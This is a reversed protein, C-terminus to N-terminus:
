KIEVIRDLGFFYLLTSKIPLQYIRSLANDYALVQTKYKEVATPLSAETVYDTKFDIVTIGDAEVIACDVVGQLLIQENAVDPYYKGADDLISFKFERLVNESNQLRRGLQSDFFTFLKKCDVMKAQEASILQENKMREVEERISIEDCCSAYRIYQLVVHMANGYLVGSPGSPQGPKRFETARVGITNEAIETDKARGKLQTATLKSPIQTASKNVYTFNLDNALKNIVATSPERQIAIDTAAQMDSGSATAVSIQWVSDRVKACNPHGGLEFFAGAETRTLAAQLVWAGPCDAESALLESGSMDLRMSLKQLNAPLNKVAYTMILRDRARTLAVYLVRMEESISERIIKSSIARKAVTPYRVRLKADVCSLGLGLDKDCLVQNYAGELNFGRSLGCLFVVPFELGKSKHISMITVSGMDQQSGQSVLGREQAADLYELLRELEKTGTKEYDSVIQFFLQLNDLRVEGDPLASFTSLLNTQSYIEAVLQTVPLLRASTRLKNLNNLFNQSKEDTAACLLSYINANRDCARLSALDEATFGFVPSTLVAVLPIDQLPNNVIQLIARVTAIEETQLLDTTDGTTCRIGRVQLAHRFANGVSGPSRLLIVIDEPQIPRLAEGNRILHTGDLLECIKDAVFAAEEDYTDTQVDIGYLAVEPENLSVHEIGEYLMEDQGYTLGGVAPSMCQSFVDNVACIIGNSSRFNHSLLVKRGEGAKASDAPAFTTYKEIFISPDALRFQYISQKVDGVMFCNQKKLTLASFIADQIENSDQYEDVMIERFREGVEAAIATAGYRQVGLFLDLTKHELDSFDLIGRSKKLKDYSKAFERVLAVLGKTAYVSLSLDKLIQTSDNSFSRMRKALGDKCANRVSKMQEALQLNGCNKSFTLRGYDINSNAVIEDWTKCNYLGELQSITAELLAVPKEMGDSHMGASVCRRLADIQLDLYRHLDGILYQGWITQGADTMNDTECMVCWDLWKEPNLHCKASNYVKLIIEPIQRDDRGLGQSDIFACFEANEEATEYASNLVQELAKIQLQLCEGEDAVRFDAPVDLRYAYQRLIDACFGHVTSIKALYLRQMQQQLHKNPTSGAILESLKAAIKGRLEAAAAKTYTIILFDDINAPKIPDLIYSMLRDVLVKTKGSGAAASVLLKGGRNEVAQLQQPTLKEAM